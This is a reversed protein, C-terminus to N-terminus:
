SKCKLRWVRIMRGHCSPTTSAKWGCPEFEGSKFVAGWANPHTPEYKGMIQRMDDAAVTGTMGNVCKVCAWTRATELWEANHAAVRKIGADKLAKGDFLTPQATM